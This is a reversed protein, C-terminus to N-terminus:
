EGVLLLRARRNRREYSTDSETALRAIPDTAGKGVSRIREDNLGCEEVLFRKV